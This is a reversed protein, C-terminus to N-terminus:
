VTKNMILGRPPLPHYAQAAGYYLVYPYMHIFPQRLLQMPTYQEAYSLARKLDMLLGESGLLVRRLTNVEEMNPNQPLIAPDWVLRRGVEQGGRKIGLLEMAPHRMALTMAEWIEPRLLQERSQYASEWRNMADVLTHVSNELQEKSAVGNHRGLKELLEGLLKQGQGAERLWSYVGQSAAEEKKKRNGQTGAIPTQEFATLPYAAYRNVPHTRAYAETREIGRISRSYAIM